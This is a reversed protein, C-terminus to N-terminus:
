IAIIRTHCGVRTITEDARGAAEQARLAVRRGPEVLDHSLGLRWAPRHVEVEGSALDLESARGDVPEGFARRGPHPLDEGFVVGHGVGDGGDEVAVDLV